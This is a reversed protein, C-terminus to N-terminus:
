TCSAIRYVIITYKITSNIRFLYMTITLLYVLSRAKSGLVLENLTVVVLKEFLSVECSSVFCAPCPDRRQLFVIGLFFTAIEEKSCTFPLGRLLVVGDSSACKCRIEDKTRRM